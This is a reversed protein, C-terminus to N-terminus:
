FNFILSSLLVPFSVSGGSSFLIIENFTLTKKVQSSGNERKGGGLLTLYYL